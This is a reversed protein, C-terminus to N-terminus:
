RLWLTPVTLAFRRHLGVRVYRRLISHEVRVSSIDAYAIEGVNSRHVITVVTMRVIWMIDGASAQARRQRLAWLGLLLAVGATPLACAWSGPGVYILMALGGAVAAPVARFVWSNPDRWGRAIMVVDALGPQGCEPCPASSPLGKRPYGCDLCDLTTGEDIPRRNM